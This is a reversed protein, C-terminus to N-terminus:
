APRAVTTEAAFLKAIRRARYDFIQRLQRQVILRHAVDGLIGLPLEYQVVDRMVTGSPTEEFSHEHRWTKYPGRTQTDVFRHPPEYETISTVWRLGLRMWKIRYIIKFGARIEGEDLHTIEFGMWKPTINALNRPDRFFPFVEDLPAALLTSRKLVHM